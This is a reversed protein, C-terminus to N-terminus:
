SNIIQDRQAVFNRLDTFEKSQSTYEQIIDEDWIGCDNLYKVWQIRAIRCAANFKEPSEFEQINVGFRILGIKKAEEFRLRRNAEIDSKYVIKYVHKPKFVGKSIEIRHCEKVYGLKQMASGFRKMSLDKNSKLELTAKIEQPQLLMSLNKNSEDVPIIHESIVDSELDSEVVSRKDISDTSLRCDYKQKKLKALVDQINESSTDVFVIIKKKSM